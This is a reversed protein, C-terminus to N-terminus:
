KLVGQAGLEAIHAADLGLLDGLIDPSDRGFSPAPRIYEAPTASLECRSAEFLTDAGAPHPLHVFCGRANLHADAMVDAPAAIKHAAIGAAQLRDEVQQATQTLAWTALLAEVATEDAQRGALSAYRPELAAGGIMDALQGWEADSRASIAVWEDAGATRLVVNPAIAADRNGQAAKVRGTAAADAIEPALFTAAAEVQSVDIHRGRGTRRREDLAALLAILAMRPAPFDTYAGYPGVPPTDPLGTIQQFGGLAAGINGFGGFSSHPGTQGLLSSSVMILGPSEAALTAYDLGFKAMQGPRFSEVLVDAWLALQRAIDRGQAQTMDLTLGLKNANCNDYLASRQVDYKGGYFPGQQRTTDLRSSSEVRVVTAGFDALMRGVQPGAVAWAFDAVKLGALASM